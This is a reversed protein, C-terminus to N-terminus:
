KDFSKLGSVAFVVSALGLGAVALLGGWTHNWTVQGLFGERALRLVNTIPNVRAIPKVWGKIFGLPMQAASLFITFFIAFQTLAAAALSRMRFALGLGFASACFSVGLAAAALTLLGLFGGPLAAGGIFGVVCVLVLPIMARVMSAALPGVVLASRGAPAMRLRDFFGTQLDNVTAFALGMAGFAAGQIASLPVYWDLSHRIGAYALAGAFAGGFAILQFVPMALSPLFASPMRRVRMLSRRVLVAVVATRVPTASPVTTITM